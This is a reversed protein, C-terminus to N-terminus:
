FRVSCGLTSLMGYWSQWEFVGDAPSFFKVSKVQNTLCHHNLASSHVCWDWMNFFIQDLDARKRNLVVMGQGTVVRQQLIGRWSERLGKLNQFTSVVGGQLRKKELSFLRLERLRDEYVWLMSQHRDWKKRIWSCPCNMYKTRSILAAGLCTCSLKSSTQFILNVRSCFTSLTEKHAQPKKKTYSRIVM